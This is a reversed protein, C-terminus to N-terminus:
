VARQFAARGATVALSQVYEAYASEITALNEQGRKRVWWGFFILPIGLIAMLITLTM